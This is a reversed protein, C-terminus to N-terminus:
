VGQAIPWCYCFVEEGFGLFAPGCGFYSDMCVWPDVVAIRAYCVLASPEPMFSITVLGSALIAKRGYRVLPSLEIGFEVKQFLACLM